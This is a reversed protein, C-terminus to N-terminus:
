SAFLSAASQLDDVVEEPFLRELEDSDIHLQEMIDLGIEPVHSDGCNGIQLRRAVSDAVCVVAALGPEPSGKPNHHFEIAQVITDPLKWHAAVRAGVVAHDFGLMEQEADRLSCERERSANVVERYTDGYHIDLVLKGIDHLLGAAFAEGEVIGASKSLVKAVAGTAASHHWLAAIDLGSGGGGKLKDMVGLSTVINRTTPLGLIMCAQKLSTIRGGFGYFPSNAVALVRVTLAPDKCIKEELMAFTVEDRSFLAMVEQVAEPLPPLSQLEQELKELEIEM